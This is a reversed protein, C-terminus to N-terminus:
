HELVVKRYPRGVVLRLDEPLERAQRARNGFIDLEAKVEAVARGSILRQNPQAVGRHEDIEHVADRGLHRPADIEDM